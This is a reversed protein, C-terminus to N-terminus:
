LEGGATSKVALKLAAIKNETEVYEKSPQSDAVIGAGAQLIVKGNEVTITRITICTDMDGSPSFYGVAGAYVGRGAKELEEIIEMARVKPAGTVTGAPFSARFLDFQDAGDNLEGQVDSVIHMVHSYREVRMFGEIKITGYKCIRGLDNRALDVLMTHEAREKEDALLDKELIADAGLSEGRPRTGAIPSITAKRGELKVLVEPSSGVIKREGFDLYFMYPSPNGMRLRRYIEFSDLNCDASVKRSLVIQFSDGDYIHKRAIEVMEGYEEPTTDSYFEIERKEGSGKKYILPAELKKLIERHIDNGGTEGEPLMSYIKMRRRLHDFAVLAEVFYFQCIPTEDANNHKSPINEIFKAYDYSIYGVAAGLLAPVPEESLLECSGIIESLLELPDGSKKVVSDSNQYTAGRGDAELLHGSAFGIFSYRGLRDVSEASELLFTAGAERLKLYASVPTELDAPLETSVVSYRKKVIDAKKNEATM